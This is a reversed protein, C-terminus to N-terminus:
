TLRTLSMPLNRLNPNSDTGIRSTMAIMNWGVTSILEALLSKEYFGIPSTNM